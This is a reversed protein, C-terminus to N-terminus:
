FIYRLGLVAVASFTMLAALLLDQNRQQDEAPMNACYVVAKVEDQHHNHMKHDKRLYSAPGAFTLVWELFGFLCVSPLGLM